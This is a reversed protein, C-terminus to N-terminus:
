ILISRVNFAAINERELAPGATMLARMSPMLDLNYIADYVEKYPFTEPFRKAWFDCYRTVTEGWNERRGQDPIWRAYRSKHIYQQYDTLNNSM